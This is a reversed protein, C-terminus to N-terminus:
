LLKEGKPPKIERELQFTTHQIGFHERAIHILESLIRDGEEVDEVVVHTSIAYIGSTITWSHLDHLRIVGETKVLARELEALNLHSPTGELLIDASDSMLKWTRPLIAVAIIISVLPDAVYWGTTMIVLGAA